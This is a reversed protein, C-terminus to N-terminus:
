FPFWSNEYGVCTCSLNLVGFLLRIKLGGSKATEADGKFYCSTYEPAPLCAFNDWLAAVSHM